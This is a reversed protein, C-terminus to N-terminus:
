WNLEFMAIRGSIWVDILRTVYFGWNGFGILVNM